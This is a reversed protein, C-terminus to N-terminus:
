RCARFPRGRLPPRASGSGSCRSPRCRDVVARREGDAAASAACAASCGDGHPMAPAESEPAEIEPTAAGDYYREAAITDGARVRAVMEDTFRKGWTIRNRTIWYHSRCDFSWNGISPQLTVSEGNYALSWEAPSFPTVVKERCGCACLHVALDFAISVYLVGEKLQERKPMTEVFRHELRDAKM